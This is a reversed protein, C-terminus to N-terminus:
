FEKTHGQVCLKQGIKMFLKLYCRYIICIYFVLNSTEATIQKQNISIVSVCLGLVLFTNKPNLPGWLTYICLFIWKSIEIWFKCFVKELMVHNLTLLFSYSKHRKILIMKEHVNLINFINARLYKTRQKIATM